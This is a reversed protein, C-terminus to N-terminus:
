RKVLVDDLVFARSRASDFRLRSPRLLVLQKGTDEFAMTLGCPTLLETWKRMRMCSAEDRSRLSLLGRLGCLFLRCLSFPVRTGRSAVM